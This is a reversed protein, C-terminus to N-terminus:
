ATAASQFILGIRVIIFEAPYTVRLGIEVTLKGAARDVDRNFLAPFRVYFAEDDTAGFLAGDRWVGDLFDRVSRTIQKQLTLNNPEFVAWSLGLRLSEEVYSVLRRINTYLYDTDRTPSTALQLTRAGWIVVNGGFVRLINVGDANRPDQQADTLMDEVGLVGLIMENAPAKHVGRNADVRAFVGAIHGSPSAPESVPDGTLPRGAVVQPGVLVRPYYFAAHISDPPRAGTGTPPLFNSLTGLDTVKPPPDLIAFRNRSTTAQDELAQYVALWDAAATFTGPIAILNVDDLPAVHSLGAVLDAAAMSDTNVVYCVGGGNAFFGFVARSLPTSRAAVTDGLITPDALVYDHAFQDASTVQRAVSTFRGAKPSQGVFAATSTGVGLIPPPALRLENIKVGPTNPNLLTM